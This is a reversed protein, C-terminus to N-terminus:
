HSLIKNRHHALVFHQLFIHLKVVCVPHLLHAVHCENKLEFDFVKLVLDIFIYSFNLLVIIIRKVSIAM